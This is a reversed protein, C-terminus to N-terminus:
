SVMSGSTRWTTRFFSYLIIQGFYKLVITSMESVTSVNLQGLMYVMNSVIIGRTLNPDDDNGLASDHRNGRKGMLVDWYVQRFKIPFEPWSIGMMNLGNVTRILEVYTADKSLMSVATTIRAIDISSSRRESINCELRGISWIGNSLAEMNLDDLLSLFTDMVTTKQQGSLPQRKAAMTKISEIFENYEPNILSKEKDVWSDVATQYGLFITSPLTRRHSLGSLVFAHVQCLLRSIFAFLLWRYPQM